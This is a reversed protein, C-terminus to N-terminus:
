PMPLKGIAADNASYFYVFRADATAVAPPPNFIPVGYAPVGNAHRLLKLEVSDAYFLGCANGTLLNKTYDFRQCEAFSGKTMGSAQDTWDIVCSGSQRYHFYIDNDDLVIARPDADVGTFWGGLVSYVYHIGSDYNDLVFVGGPGSVLVSNNGTVGLPARTTLVVTATGGSKPAKWVNNSTQDIWYVSTADLGVDTPSSAASVVQPTGPAGKPTRMVAGGLMDSFYVYTDDVALGWPKAQGQALAVAGGGAIPAKRLASNGDTWYVATADVVM